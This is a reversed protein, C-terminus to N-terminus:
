NVDNSPHIHHEGQDNSFCAERSMGIAKLFVDKVKMSLIAPFSDVISGSTQLRIQGDADLYILLFHTYHLRDLKEEASM